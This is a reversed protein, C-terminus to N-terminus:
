RADTVFFKEFLEKARKCGEPTVIVSKAKSVPNGIFGKDHLRNMTDWDFGKWARAGHESEDHMVLFLLALTYEDVKDRDYGMIGIEQSLTTHSSALTEHTDSKQKTGM